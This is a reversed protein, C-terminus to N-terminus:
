QSDKVNVEKMTKIFEEVIGISDGTVTIQPILNDNENTIKVDVDSPHAVIYENNILTKVTDDYLTFAIRSVEPNDSGVSVKVMARGDPRTSIEVYYQKDERHIVEDTM